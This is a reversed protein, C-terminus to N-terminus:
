FKVNQVPAVHSLLLFLLFTGLPFDKERETRERELEDRLTWEYTLVTNLKKHM